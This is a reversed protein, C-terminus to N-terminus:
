HNSPRKRESVYDIAELVAQAVKENIERLEAPSLFFTTDVDHRIYRPPLRNLAVCAVDAIFNNDSQAEDVYSVLYEIVLREYYNHISGLTSEIDTEHLHPATLM